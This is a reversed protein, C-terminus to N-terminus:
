GPEAERDAVREMVRPSAPIEPKPPQLIAERQARWAPWAEGLDGWETDEHPVMVRQREELKERTASRREGLETVWGPSTEPMPQDAALALEDHEQESVPEPEASRLPEIDMEPHRRHLEADAAVAIRRGHETIKEWEARDEMTAAFIGERQRHISEAKRYWTALYQHRERTEEDPAVDAEADRRIAERRADEAGARAERLQDGVWRPAWATESEYTKRRLWLGRDDISRVDVGEAPALAAFATWYAARKGPEDAAPEPGIADKTSEYGVLERYAGIDAARRQWDLRQLPEEPVPGIAEVAWPLAADAAHEGIREKREDMAHAIDEAFRQRDPDALEPVRESWPGMPEPILGQVMPRIRSDLVSALDRAGDLSRSEVATIVVERVDLGAAEATRLSRLLWRTQHSSLDGRREPPLADLVIQRHREETAAKTEGEWMANLRALHDVSALARRQYETASEEAGDRALVDALVGIGEREGAVAAATTDQAVYGAREHARRDHRDLEPAPRTQPQPDAVKPSVTGVYVDNSDTGRSMGVYLTQRDETGTAVLIGRKVTRSQSTMVTIGYGLDTHELDSFLVPRETLQHEGTDPDRGLVRHVMLGEPTIEEIRLTDGNALKHGPDTELKPDNKRAIILDGARAEAGANLVTVRAGDQVGLHLLEDSVRRALERAREREQTMLLANEGALYSAVYAQAADDMVQELPGSHIRGQQDYDELASVDGLRLRLSADREWEARFRVPVALQVYGLGRALLVMGGGNEVAQLQQSDGAVIVKADNAAAYAIIDAMDATSLMSAEDILILDGPGIRVPPLACRGRTEHHGLFQAFNYSEPGGAALTNRSAQSPTVGIVRGLGAATWAKAAAILSTTKGSGAPADLVEAQRGSTLARHVAAAQDLRLGSQTHENQADQARAHLQAELTDADAGLAQASEERSLAPAGTRRAVKGLREERALQARSAYKVGSHPEYVSRGDERLLDKPVELWQPAELCVVEGFEGAMVRDTTHELLDLARAPELHRVEAPLTWGLYKTVDARTWTAKDAELRALAERAGQAIAGPTVGRQPAAHGSAAPALSALEVGLADRLQGSWEELKQTLDVPGEKGERTMENAVRSLHNLVSQTPKRGTQAEYGHALERVLTSVTDRRSSFLDIVDQGIGKIEYGLGDARREWELGFRRTMAAEFHLAVISAFAGAHEGYSRNDPARFKGDALTEAVHAITTHVHLQPDGDRSTHQLWMVASLAAEQWKGTEQGQARTHNGTRVYGAEREFYAFGALVADYVMQEIEGGAGGWKAATAPDAGARANEGASAGFVSISKSFGSTLDFYYPTQRERLAAEIRLQRKREATAHPEAAVLAEYVTQVAAADRGAAPRRGLKTTGDKPHVREAFLRSYEENAVKEGAAYGLREAGKGVWRGPPEGQEAAQAYYGGPRYEPNVGRTPYAVDYGPRVSARVTV